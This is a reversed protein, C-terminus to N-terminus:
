SQCSQVNSALVHPLLALNSDSSDGFFTWLGTRRLVSPGGLFAFTPTPPSFASLQSRLFVNITIRTNQNTRYNIRSKKGRRKKETATTITM